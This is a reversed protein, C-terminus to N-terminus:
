RGTENRARLVRGVAPPIGAFVDHQGVGVAAAVIGHRQLFAAMEGAEPQPRPSRGLADGIWDPEYEHLREVLAQGALRSGAEEADFLRWGHGERSIFPCVVAAVRHPGDNAFQLSGRVEWPPIRVKDRGALRQWLDGTLDAGKAAFADAFLGFRRATGPGVGLSAPVPDFVGAELDLFIKDVSVIAAGVAAALELMLTTKGTGSEGVILVAGAGTKVAAAHLRVADPSVVADLVARLCRLAVTLVARSSAARVELTRPVPDLLVWADNHDDRVLVRGDKAWRRGHVTYTPYAALVVPEPRGWDSPDVAEPAGLHVCFAADPPPWAEDDADQLAFFPDVLSSAADHLGADASLGLVRGGCGLRWRRVPRDDM